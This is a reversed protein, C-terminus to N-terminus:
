KWLKVPYVGKTALQELKEIVVPKDEKYTVGFWEADTRLVKVKGYGGQIVRNIVYPLYFEAKPHDFNQEIFEEFYEELYHFITPTFGFM